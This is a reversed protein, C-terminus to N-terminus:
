QGIREIIRDNNFVFIVQGDEALVAIRIVCDSCMRAQIDPIIDFMFSGRESM